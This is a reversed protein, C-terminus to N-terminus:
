GRRVEPGPGESWPLSFLQAFRRALSRVDNHLLGAPQRAWWAIRRRFTRHSGRSWGRAARSLAANARHEYDESPKTLFLLELAPNFWVVMPIDWAHVARELLDLPVSPNCLVERPLAKYLVRLREPPTRPDRAEVHLEMSPGCLPPAKM